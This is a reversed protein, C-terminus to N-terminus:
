PILPTPTMFLIIERMFQGFPASEKPLDKRAIKTIGGLVFYLIVRRKLCHELQFHASFAFLAAPEFMHEWNSQPLKVSFFISISACIKQVNFTM